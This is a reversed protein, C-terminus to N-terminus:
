EVTGRVYMEGMAVSDNNKETINMKVYRAQVPQAGVVKQATIVSKFDLTGFLEFTVGDMSTLIEVTKPGSANNQRAYLEIQSITATKALDVLKITIWSPLQSGTSWQAHWYTDINDDILADPGDGDGNEYDRYDSVTWNSQAIIPDVYEIVIYQIARDPNIEFKSVAALQVPLLYKSGIKLKSKDINYKLSLNQVGSKLVPSAPDLTYAGSPLALYDTGNSENYATVLDDTNSITLSIDWKNPFDASVLIEDTSFITEGGSAVTLDEVTGNGLSIMAKVIEPKLMAVSKDPNITASSTLVMPLVYESTALDTLQAITETEFTVDIYQNNQGSGFNVKSGSVSYCNQPLMKYSTGNEANYLQLNAADMVNVEASAKTDNFAGAKYIGLRYLTSEGTRYLTIDSEGSNTIYLTTAYPDMYDERKDECAILSGLLLVGAIIKNIKM